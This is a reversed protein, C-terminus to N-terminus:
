IDTLMLRCSSQNASAYLQEATNTTQEFVTRFVFNDLIFCWFCCAKEIQCAPVLERKAEPKLSVNIILTVATDYETLQCFM